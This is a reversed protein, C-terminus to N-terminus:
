WLPGSPVWGFAAAGRLLSFSAVLLLLVGALRPSAPRRVWRSPILGLALLTPVTGLGFALMVAAGAGGSGALAARSTAAYVMACPLLGQTMGLLVPALTRPMQAAAARAAGLAHGLGFRLLWRTPDGLVGIMSLALTGMAVGVALAVLGDLHWAASLALAIKGFSGAIAGLLAYVVLRGASLMVHQGAIAGAAIGPPAFRAACAGVYPGCMAICHASGVFGAAFLLPLDSGAALALHHVHM